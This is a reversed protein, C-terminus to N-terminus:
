ESWIEGACAAYGALDVFCDESGGGKIRAIKMLAMMVGVDLPKIPAGLYASWLKAIARFNDEPSGYQEQRQGSVIQKAQDLIETRKM